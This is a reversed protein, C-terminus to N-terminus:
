VQKLVVGCILEYMPIVSVGKVLDFERSKRWDVVVIDGVEVSLRNDKPISVVEVTQYNGDMIKQKITKLVMIDKEPNKGKNKPDDPDVILQDEYRYKFKYPKVLVQDQLMILDVTNVKM